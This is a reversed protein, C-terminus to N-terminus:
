PMDGAKHLYTLPEKRNVLDTASVVMGNTLCAIPLAFPHLCFEIEKAFRRASESSVPFM